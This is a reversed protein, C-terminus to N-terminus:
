FANGLRFAAFRAGIISSIRALINASSVKPPSDDYQYIRLVDVDLPYYGLSRVWPVDDIIWWFTSTM